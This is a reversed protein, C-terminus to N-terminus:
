FKVQLMLILNGVVSFNDELIDRHVDFWTVALGYNKTKGYLYNFLYVALGFLMVM